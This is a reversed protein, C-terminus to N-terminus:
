LEKGIGLRVSKNSYGIDEVVTEFLNYSPFVGEQTKDQLIIEIEFEELGELQQILESVKM